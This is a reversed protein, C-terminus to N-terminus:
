RGAVDRLHVPSSRGRARSSGTCAEGPEGERRESIVSTGAFAFLSKRTSPFTCTGSPVFGSAPTSRGRPALGGRGLDLDLRALFEAAAPGLARGNGDETKLAVALGNGAACLLGEAGGKAIWGPLAKMLRTDTALSGRILDPYARMAATVRDGGDLQSLRSFAHAMRELPLAFTLVGCGDVAARIEDEDVEAAEAHVALMARQVRHGELRYGESRWDKARCLALMGAHKGSCNHKLPSPPNGEPGCELEEERAPAKALLARVAALQSEDALHSASAIALDREEVDGRARALPIAQLPKSSSRMFAVLASNGAEAVVAGDQVAVAHVRHVAEVVGGRRVSVRLAEM